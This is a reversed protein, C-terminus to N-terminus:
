HSSHLRKARFRRTIGERLLGAAEKHGAELALDLPLKGDNSRLNLNAGNFLLIRLIESNGNQAAAHLPAYGEQERVNPDANHDLLLSVIKVHDAAAASYLPTVNLANRSPSNPSAGAKILYKAAEYHGFFCALGLPQFGDDSYANVLLPDRALQRALQNNKGTAASEFITLNGSKDALFDAIKAEQHYAAVMVPSLKKEKEHILSPNTSLLNQVEELSGRKIADFFESSM